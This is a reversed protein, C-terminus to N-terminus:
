QQELSTPKEIKVKERIIELFSGPLIHEGTSYYIRQIYSNISNKVMNM